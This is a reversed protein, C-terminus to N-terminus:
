RGKIRDILKVVPTVAIDLVFVVLGVLSLFRLIPHSVTPLIHNYAYFFFHVAFVVLSVYLFLAVALVAVALGIVLLEILTDRM